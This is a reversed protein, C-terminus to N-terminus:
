LQENQIENQFKYLEEQENLNQKYKIYLEYDSDDVSNENFVDIGENLLQEIYRKTYSM